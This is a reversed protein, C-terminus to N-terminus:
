HEPALVLLLRLLTQPALPATVGANIKPLSTPGQDCAVRATTVAPCVDWGRLLCTGPGPAPFSEAAGLLARSSVVARGSVAGHQPRVKM